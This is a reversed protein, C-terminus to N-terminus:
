PAVGRIEGGAVQARELLRAHQLQHLLAGPAPEGLAHEAGAGVREHDVGSDHAGACADLRLVAIRRLVQDAGGGVHDAVDDAHLGRGLALARPQERERDLRVDPEGGGGVDLAEALQEHLGGGAGGGGVAGRGAAPRVPQHEAAV